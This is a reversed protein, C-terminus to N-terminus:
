FPWGITFHIRGHDIDIGYGYDLRLPGIPTRLRIGVGVGSYLDGLDFDDTSSWVNGVDYFVAAKLDKMVPIIHEINALLRVEGGIPQDHDDKPGIDRYPYGRVSDAGGIYFREYIPVRESDGYTDVLGLEMRLNVSSEGWAPIFWSARGIHKTFNENGGFFDGAVETSISSRVGRSPDFFNDRTDRALSLTLSSIRKTGEERRIEESVDSGLDLIEVDEYRYKAQIRNFEGLRHGLRLKAGDRREDYDDWQRLRGYFDFGCSLPVDFLWPETFSLSYNERDSGVEGRLSLSQGAGIFTPPNSIDFNEIDIEVFGVFKDITSYGGGFLFTGIKGESVKFRIDKRDPATGDEIEFIVSEFFPQRRGLNGIRRRSARIKGLDFRDGPKILIERRIIKDKTKRNGSIKINEIYVPVGKDIKYEIEVVKNEEDVKKDARVRAYLYGKGYLLDYVIRIDKRLEGPSFRAGQRLKTEKKLEEELQVKGTVYKPGEELYFTVTIKKGTEDFSINADLVKARIYGNKAYYSLVREKDENLIDERFVRKGFLARRGTKIQRKIRRDPFVENGEIRVETVRALTGEDIDFTVSVEMKEDDMGTQPEVSVNAFGAENYLSIIRLRDEKLKAPNFLEGENLLLNKRLKREKLARNGAFVVKAVVYKEKVRFVLVIGAPTKAKEVKIDQFDGKEYLRRIDERILEPSLIDGEKTKLSNLIVSAATRVNGEVRIAAINGGEEAIAM